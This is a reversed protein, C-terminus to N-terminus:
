WYGYCWRVQFKAHLCINTAPLDRQFFYQLCHQKGTFLLFLRQYYMIICYVHLFTYFNQSRLNRYM